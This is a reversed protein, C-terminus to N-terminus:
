TEVRPPCAASLVMAVAWALLAAGAWGVASPFISSVMLYPQAISWALAAIVGVGLAAQLGRATRSESSLPAFRRAGSRLGQLLRSGQWLCALAVLGILGWLGRTADVIRGMKVSGLGRWGAWDRLVHAIFPWSRESNTLIVIGDGSAPVAVFHAMWGHGQGGHWVATRGDPLNEIFHGLGYADAVVGYIGTVAVEPAHLERISDRDLLPHAADDAGTMEASVFRAIDQVPALLGGSARVSYVYPPVATGQQEYGMPMVSRLTENWAFTSRHMGLPDLVADAMYAAFDRGTVEEILLELLNFGVNSYLFGSGPERVPRVEEALYARLSPREGQPAYEVEAGIPGLPMGANQSLLQRVTIAQGIADPVVGEGLYSQVPADLDIQGREVLAMVGWATVSKSISEARYVADLTMKRDGELDAYGYADFWVPEGDRVLAVSAGPVDYREMLRPVRRDLHATFADLPDYPGPSSRSCGAVIVLLGV